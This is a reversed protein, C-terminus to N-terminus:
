GARSPTVLPARLTPAAPCFAMGPPTTCPSRTLRPPLTRGARSGGGILAVEPVRRSRERGRGHPESLLLPRLARRCRGARCLARRPLLRGERTGVAGASADDPLLFLEADFRGPGWSRLVARATADDVGLLDTIPKLNPALAVIAGVNLDRNPWGDRRRGIGPALSSDVTSHCLACQIGISRLGGSRSFFGTVGVVANLKLLALTTAPNDLDVQGQRLAEILAFPLAESDVKLGVALATKPSVGPGVGGLAAGEVAQHLGLARGWFAEDGFTDYRFVHQGEALQDRSHSAVLNNLPPVFGAQGQTSSLTAATALQARAMVLPLGAALAAALTAWLLLSRIRNSM